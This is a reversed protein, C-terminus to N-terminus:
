KMSCKCSIPDGSWIITKRADRVQFGAIHVCVIQETTDLRM